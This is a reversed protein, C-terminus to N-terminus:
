VLLWHVATYNQVVQLRHMYGVADISEDIFPHDAQGRLGLVVGAHQVHGNPYLLKAGVIGVEPRQAHNLMEDLWCESIIATDNNLLVVYEGRAENVAM